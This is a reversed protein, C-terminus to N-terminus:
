GPGATWRSCTAPGFAVALGHAAVVAPVRRERLATAGNSLASGTAAVVAAPGRLSPVWTARLVDVLLVHGPPAAIAEAATCVFCAPGRGVGPSAPQGRLV